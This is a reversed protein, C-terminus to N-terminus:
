LQFEEEFAGIKDIVEGVLQNEDQLKVNLGKTQQTTDIDM